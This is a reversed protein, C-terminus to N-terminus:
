RKIRKASRRVRKRRKGAINQQLFMELMILLALIAIILVRDVFHIINLIVLSAVFLGSWLGFRVGMMIVEREPTKVLMKKLLIRWVPATFGGVVLVILALAVAVFFPQPPLNIVLAALGATALIAVLLSLVDITRPKMRMFFLLPLSKLFGSEDEQQLTDPICFTTFLDREHSCPRKLAM